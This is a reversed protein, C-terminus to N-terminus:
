AVTATPSIDPCGGQSPDSSNFASALIATTKAFPFDTEKSCSELMGQQKLLCTGNITKLKQVIRWSCDGTGEPGIVQSENQCMGAEPLSLWVGVDSNDVCQGAHPKLGFSAERGVLYKEKSICVGEESPSPRNCEAYDGWGTWVQLSYRSVWQYADASTHNALNDACIFATDGILDAVDENYIDFVNAPHFIYADFQVWAACMLYLM